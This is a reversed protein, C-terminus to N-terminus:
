RDNGDQEQPATEAPKAPKDHAQDPADEKAEEKPEDKPQEREEPPKDAPRGPLNGRSPFPLPQPASEDAPPAPEAAAGKPEKAALTVLSTGTAAFKWDSIHQRNEFGSFRPDFNGVKLPRSKSLSYVAIVGGQEGQYQVGWEAKGTIPDVFMKRLHRRPEPFRTDRLLDELKRPQTPKGKPTVAAYSKLADAFDAGIALLEEEAAARRLLADAKLTLAGVMGIITIFIVLALYSFGGERSRPATVM